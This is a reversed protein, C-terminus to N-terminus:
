RSPGTFLNPNNRPGAFNQERNQKSCNYDLGFRINHRLPGIEWDGLKNKGKDVLHGKKSNIKLSKEGDPKNIM